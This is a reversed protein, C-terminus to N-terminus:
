THISPGTRTMYSNTLFAAIRCHISVADIRQPDLSLERRYLQILEQWHSLRHQLRGAARIAEISKPDAAMIEEHVALARDHEELKFELIHAAQIRRGKAELADTTDNAQELLLDALASYDENREYLEMLGFAAQRTPVNTDVQKLTAIAEDDRNLHQSQVEALELM